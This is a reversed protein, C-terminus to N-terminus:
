SKICLLDYLDKRCRKVMVFNPGIFDDLDWNYKEYFYVGNPYLKGIDREWAQCYPCSKDTIMILTNKSFVTESSGFWFCIIFFGSVFVFFCEKCIQKRTGCMKYRVQRLSGNGM